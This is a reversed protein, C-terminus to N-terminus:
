VSSESQYESRTLVCSLGLRGQSVSSNLVDIQICLSHFHGVSLRFSLILISHQSSDGVESYLDTAPEKLYLLSGDPEM